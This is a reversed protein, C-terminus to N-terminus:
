DEMEDTVSQQLVRGALGIGIRRGEALARDDLMAVLRRAGDFSREMRKVLFEVVGGEVLLQRDAFLKVLLAALLGDDPAAIAVCPAARLRSGLDALGIGWRAPPSAATILLHAGCQSAANYLYLLPRELDAEIHTEIGDIVAAAAEQFQAEPGAGAWEDALARGDVLRAGTRERFVQGLHTKGCGAPGHVVLAPGPWHPWSDMWAVADANSPAVLFDEAALAPRHGFDFAIQVASTM